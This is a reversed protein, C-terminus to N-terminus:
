LTSPDGASMYAHALMTKPLEQVQPILFAFDTLITLSVSSSFEVCNKGLREILLNWLIIVFCLM